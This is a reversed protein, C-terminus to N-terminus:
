RLNRTGSAHSCTCLLKTFRCESTACTMRMAEGGLRFRWCRAHRGQAKKWRQSRGPQPLPTAAPRPAARRGACCPAASPHHLPPGPWPCATCPARATGCDTRLPGHWTGARPLTGRGRGCEQRAAHLAQGTRPCESSSRQQQETSRGHPTALAAANDESNLICPVHQPCPIPKTSPALDASQPDHM